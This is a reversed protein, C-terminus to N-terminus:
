YAYFLYHLYFFWLQLSDFTFKIFDFTVSSQLTDRQKNPDDSRYRHRTGPVQYRMYGKEERMNATECSLSFNCTLHTGLVLYLFQKRWEERTGRPPYRRRSNSIPSNSRKGNQWFTFSALSIVSLVSVDLKLAFEESRNYIFLYGRRLFLTLLNNLLQTREM